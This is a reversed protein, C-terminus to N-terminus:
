LNTSHSCLFQKKILSEYIFAGDLISAKEEEKQQQLYGALHVKIDALATLSPPQMMQVCPVQSDQICKWVFM